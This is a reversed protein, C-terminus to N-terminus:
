DAAGANYFSLARLYTAREIGLRTTTEDADYYATLTLIFVLRVFDRLPGIRSRRWRAVIAARRAAPLRAFTAGATVAGDLALLLALAGLGVRYLPQTNRLFALVFRRCGDLTAPGATGELEAVLDEVLAGLAAAATEGM